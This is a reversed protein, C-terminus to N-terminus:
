RAEEGVVFECLHVTWGKEILTDPETISARLVRWAEDASARITSLIPTDHPSVCIYANM